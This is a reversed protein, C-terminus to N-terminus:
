WFYLKLVCSKLMKFTYMFYVKISTYKFYAKFSTYKFYVEYM